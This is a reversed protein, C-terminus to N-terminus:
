VEDSRAFWDATASKNFKELVTKRKVSKSNLDEKVSKFEKKSLSSVGQNTKFLSITDATMLITYLLDRTM